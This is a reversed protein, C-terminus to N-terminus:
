TYISINLNLPVFWNILYRVSCQQSQFIILKGKNLSLNKSRLLLRILERVRLVQSYQKMAKGCCLFIPHNSSSAGEQIIVSDTTWKTLASQELITTQTLFLLKHVAQLLMQSPLSTIKNKHKYIKQMAEM